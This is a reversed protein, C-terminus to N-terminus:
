PTVYYEVVFYCAATSPITFSGTETYINLTSGSAVNLANQYTVWSSKAFSQVQGFATITNSVGNVLNGTAPNSGGRAVVSVFFNPTGGWISGTGTSYFWIDTINAGGPLPISASLNGSVMQAFDLLVTAAVNTPNSYQSGAIVLNGGVKTTDIKQVLM